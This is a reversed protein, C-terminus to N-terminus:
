ATHQKAATLKDELQYKMAVASANYTKFYTSSANDFVKGELDRRM